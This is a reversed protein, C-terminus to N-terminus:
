IKILYPNRSVLKMVYIDQSKLDTYELINTIHKEIDDVSANFYKPSDKSLMYTSIDDGIIEADQMKRVRGMNTHNFFIKTNKKWWKDSAIYVNLSENYCLSLAFIYLSLNHILESKNKFRKIVMPSISSLYKGDTSNYFLNFDVNKYKDMPIQIKTLEKIDIPSILCWM